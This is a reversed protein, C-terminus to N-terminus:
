TCGHRRFEGIAWHIDEIMWPEIKEHPTFPHIPALILGRLGQQVALPVHNRLGECYEAGAYIKLNYYRRDSMVQSWIGPGHPFFTYYIQNITAEPFAQLYGRYVDDMYKCGNGWLWTYTAIARNLATWITQDESGKLLISYQRVLTGVYTDRLWGETELSTTSPFAKAGFRERYSELAHVDYFAPENHYITEGNTLQANFISVEPGYRARLEQLFRDSADQAERCWLSLSGSKARSALLTYWDDPGWTVPAVYASLVAKMGAKLCKTVLRDPHSWDWVDKKPQVLNWYVYKVATRVGIDALRQMDEASIPRGRTIGKEDELDMLLIYEDDRVFPAAM